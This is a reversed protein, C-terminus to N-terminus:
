DNTMIDTLRIVFSNMPPLICVSFFTFAVSVKDVGDFVNTNTAIPTDLTTYLGGKGTSRIKTAPNQYLQIFNSNKLNKLTITDKRFLSNNM